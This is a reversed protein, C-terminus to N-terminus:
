DIGCLYFRSGKKLWRCSVYLHYKLIGSLFINVLILKVKEESNLPDPVILLYPDKWLQCWFVTM